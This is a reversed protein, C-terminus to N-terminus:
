EFTVNRSCVAHDTVEVLGIAKCSFHQILSFRRLCHPDRGHHPKLSTPPKDIVWPEIDLLASQILGIGTSDTWAFDFTM